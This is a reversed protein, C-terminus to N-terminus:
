SLDWTTEGGCPALSAVDGRELWSSSTNDYYFVRQPAVAAPVGTRPATSWLVFAGPAVAATTGDFSCNPQVGLQNGHTGKFGAKNIEANLAAGVPMPGSIDALVTGTATTLSGLDFQAASDQAKYRQRMFMPLAIAALVGLIVIVVLLEVLTFGHSDRPSAARLSGLRTVRGPGHRDPDRM